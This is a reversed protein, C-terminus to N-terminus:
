GARLETNARKYAELDKRLFYVRGFRKTNRPGTGASMRNRLTKTSMELFAAAEAVSLEKNSM